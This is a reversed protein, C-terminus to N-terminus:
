PMSAPAPPTETRVEAGISGTALYATLAAAGESSLEPLSVM